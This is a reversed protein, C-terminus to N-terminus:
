PRSVATASVRMVMAADAVKSRRHVHPFRSRLRARLWGSVMSASISKIAPSASVGRLEPAANPRCSRPASRLCRNSSRDKRGGSVSIKVLRSSCSVILSVANVPTKRASAEMTSTVLSLLRTTEPSIRDFRYIEFLETADNPDPSM